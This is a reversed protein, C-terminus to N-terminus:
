NAQRIRFTGIWLSHSAAYGNNFRYNTSGNWALGIQNAGGAGSVFIAGGAIKTVNGNYTLYLASDGITNDNVLILGGGVALNYTAGAAISVYNNGGTDTAFDIGWNTSPTAQPMIRNTVTLGSGYTSPSSTGIGVNGSSDIRMRESYSESGMAGTYGFFVLGNGGTSTIAGGNVGTSNNLQIGAGITNSLALQISGGSPSTTTGMLVKQSTDVTVATTSGNTALQLVGSTDGAMNLATGSTTGASIISAM